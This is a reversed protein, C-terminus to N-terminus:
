FHYMDIKIIQLIFNIFKSISVWAVVAVAVAAAADSTM